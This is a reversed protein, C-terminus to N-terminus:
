HLSPKLSASFRWILNPSYALCFMTFNIGPIVAGPNSAKFFMSLIEAWLLNMAQWRSFIGYKLNWYSIVGDVSTDFFLCDGIALLLNEGSLLKSM